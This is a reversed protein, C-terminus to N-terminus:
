KAARGAWKKWMAPDALMKILVGGVVPRAQMGVHKGTSTWYLDGMPVRNPSRDCFLYVPHFLAQFDRPDEALTATWVLWDLKTWDKRNDLPLGYENQKTKYFAIEKRAVEPPFLNLGLLKDWVLNYKQSWTGPKDFALRYHDGDDAMRIWQAAFERALKRYAAAEAKHGTMDSLQSFAGLALIAKLSLNANHALHGAFDDTCLQNEPDLGKSKLYEAWRTLIPWYKEAFRAHGDIRAMAAVLLLMNGSEEVPMQNEETKEGGGYVQGNALPYTGLDHPAFPFKWRGLAAYEMLPRLSAEELRPNVLLFLPAAPYIVDVTGICGNSFNEKPFLMPSGDLDATLKHAAIAQRYALAAVRAYEEGGARRLDAMFEDDFKRAREALSAYERASAALLDAAQWGNRRWYPRLRRHLYEISFMDDYALFLRRSVTQAGVKGLDFAFAMVPTHRRTERPMELDDTDPLVGSETFTRRAADQEALVETGHQGAGAAAHLYGWDIRLDDGWKELVPQRHSGMRLVRLGPAQYRAWVVEQEPTNVVLQPSAEFYLAVQHETSGASSVDWVLYTVPRSLVDLDDPLMPTLFTLTVRVGAGEFRYITRTPLAELSTQELAPARDRGMLRFTKGDVRILSTLAQPSGTWHRTVDETLKDAMSWVSFYPDCAALPVARPQFQPGAAFAFAATALLLASEKM